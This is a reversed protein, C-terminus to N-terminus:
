FFGAEYLIILACIFFMIAAIVRLAFPAKKKKGEADVGRTIIILYVALGMGPIAFFYYM